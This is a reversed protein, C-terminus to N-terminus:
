PYESYELKDDPKLLVHSHLKVFDCRGSEYKLYQINLCKKNKKENM